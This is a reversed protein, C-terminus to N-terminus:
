QGCPRPLARVHGRPRGHRARRRRQRVVAARPDAPPRGREAVVVEEAVEQELLELAEGDVGVYGLVPVLILVLLTGLLMALTFPDRRMQIFEKKIM